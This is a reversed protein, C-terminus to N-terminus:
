EVNSIQERIKDLEAKCDVALQSINANNAKASLTNMERSIEQTLFELTRGIPGDAHLYEEFQKFHSELRTLEESIDSKECFWAVEERLRKEDLTILGSSQLRAILLAQYQKRSAPLLRRIRALLRKLIRTRKTLDELLHKGECKRMQLLGGLASQLAVQAIPWVEGANRIHTAQWINPVNLLDSIQIEGSLELEKQLEQMQQFAERVVDKRLRIESVSVVREVAISVQIRGRMVNALVKERVMAEWTFYERPLNVQIESQKRNISFCEVTIRIGEAGAAEGFGHGTMSRM